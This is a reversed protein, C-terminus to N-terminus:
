TDCHIRRLRFLRSRRASLPVIGTVADIPKGQSKAFRYGDCSGVPGRRQHDFGFQIPFFRLTPRQMRRIGPIVLADAFVDPGSEM